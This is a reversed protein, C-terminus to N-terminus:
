NAKIDFNMILASKLRYVFLLM